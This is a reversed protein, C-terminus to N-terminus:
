KRELFGVCIRKHRYLAPMYMTILTPHTCQTHFFEARLAVHYRWRGLQSSYIQLLVSIVHQIFIKIMDCWKKEKIKYVLLVFLM